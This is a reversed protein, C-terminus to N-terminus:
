LADNAERLDGVAQGCRTRVDGIDELEMRGIGICYNGFNIGIRRNIRKGSSEAVGCNGTPEV